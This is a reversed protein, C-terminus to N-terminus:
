LLAVKRSIVVFEVNNPRPNENHTTEIILRLLTQSAELYCWGVRHLAVKIIAGQGRKIIVEINKGMVGLKVVSVVKEEM